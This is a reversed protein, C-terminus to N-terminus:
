RQMLHLWKSCMCLAKPKRNVVQYTKIHYTLCSAFLHQNQGHTLCEELMKLIVFALGNFM